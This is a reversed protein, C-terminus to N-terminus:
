FDLLERIQINGKRNIGKPAILKRVVERLTKIPKPLM